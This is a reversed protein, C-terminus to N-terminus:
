ASDQEVQLELLETIATPPKDKELSVQLCSSSLKKLEQFFPLKIHPELILDRFSLTKLQPFLMRLWLLVSVAETKAGLVTLHLVHRLEIYTPEERGTTVMSSGIHSMWATAPGQNLTLSLCRINPHRSIIAFTQTIEDPKWYYYPEKDRSSSSSDTLLHITDLAPASGPLSLLKVVFNPVAAIKTLKPLPCVNTKWDRVIFNLIRLSTLVPHRNICPITDSFQDSLCLQLDTLYPLETPSLVAFATLDFRNYTILKLRNIPSHTLSQVVWDLLRGFLTNGTLLTVERLTHVPLVPLRRGAPEVSSPPIMDVIKLRICSKGQLSNLLALLTKTFKAWNPHTPEAPRAVGWSTKHVIRAFKLHVASVSPLWTILETVEQMEQILGDNSFKCHLMHLPQLFSFSLRLGKLHTFPRDLPNGLILSTEKDPYFKIHDFYLQIAIAHLRNCVCAISLLDCPQVQKIIISLLENPLSTITRRGVDRWEPKDALLM